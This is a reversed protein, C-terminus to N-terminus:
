VAQQMAAIRQTHFAVDKRNSYHEPHCYENGESNCKPCTIKLIQQRVQAPTQNTTKAIAEIQKNATM